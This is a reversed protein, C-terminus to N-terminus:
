GILTNGWIQWALLSKAILSLWISVSEGVAYDAFRGRGQYQLWQVIAFTNFMVFITVLIGYVFGPPGGDDAETVSLVVATSMACWANACAIFGFWLPSWFVPSGPPNVTEMLWGFLIMSINVGIIAILAATDTVGTVVAILVVMLTASLSYEVWRIRNRGARLESRYLDFGITAVFLHAVASLFLFMATWFGLPFSLAEFLEGDALPTGPPGNLTFSSVQLEFDNSSLWMVLGSALHVLGMILNFRRLRDIREDSVAPVVPSAQTSAM